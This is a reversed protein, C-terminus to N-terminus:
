HAVHRCHCLGVAWRGAEGVMHTAREWDLVETRDAPLAEEHVLTRFPSTRAEKRFQEKFDTEELMYRHFLKALEAQDIDERVRMMSFEFFGVVTPTLVYHMRGRLMLDMVLGKSALAELRPALEKGPLRLRRSLQDLTRFSWPLRALLEAEETTAVIRLIQQITGQGPAGVPWRQLKEQWAAYGDKMARHGM